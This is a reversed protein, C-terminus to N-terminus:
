AEGRKVGVAYIAGDRVELMVEPLPRPPPGQLVSGDRVSFAGNHCPCYLREKEPQWEVPCSLHTCRRSYARYQGDETHVLICLDNPRPYNFAKSSGPALEVARAIEAPEFALEQRPIKSWVAMAGSGLALGGSALTMFKFFERRSVYHDEEWDIPFDQQLKEEMM